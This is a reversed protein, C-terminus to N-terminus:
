SQNGEEIREVWVLHEVEGIGGAAQTYHSWFKFLTFCDDEALERTM